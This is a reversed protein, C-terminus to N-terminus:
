TFHNFKIENFVMNVSPKELLIVKSKEKEYFISDIFISKKKNIIMLLDTLVSTAIHAIWSDNWLYLDCSKILLATERISLKNIFNIVNCNNTIEENYKEDMWLLYVNYDNELLKILKIYNSKAWCRAPERSEINLAINKKWNKIINKKATVLEENTFQLTATYKTWIVMSLDRHYLKTLHIVSLIYALLKRIIYEQWTYYVTNIKKVKICISLFWKILFLWKKLINYKPNTLSDFETILLPEFKKINQFLLFLTSGCPYVITADKHKELIKEVLALERVSDWIINWRLTLLLIKTSKKDNIITM